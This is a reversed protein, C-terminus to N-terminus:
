IGGLPKPSSLMVSLHIYAPSASPFLINSESLDHPFTIYCTQNFEVWHNLILYRSQCISPCCFCQFIINSECVKIMLPLSTALKTSNCGTTWSAHHVSLCVVSARVSARMSFYHQVVKGHPSTIYCTQKFEAWHNILLYIVSLYVSSPHVSPHSSFLTARAPRHPFTIYCTQYFEAWHNIVLYCSPCVSPHVSPHVSPPTLVIGM